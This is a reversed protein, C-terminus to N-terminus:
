KNEPPTYEDPLKMGEGFFYENMQEEFIKDTAPSSLDLRYENVIMKFHELFMNFAEKSISNYIKEGLEGPIPPRDLGPLEKKLKVCNVTRQEKM